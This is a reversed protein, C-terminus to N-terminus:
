LAIYHYLLSPLLLFSLSLFYFLYYTAFLYCPLLSTLFRISPLFSSRLSMHAFNQQFLKHARLAQSTVANRNGPCCRRAVWIAIFM